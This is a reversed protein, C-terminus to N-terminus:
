DVKCLNNGSLLTTSIKVSRRSNKRRPRPSNAIAKIVSASSFIRDLHRRCSVIAYSFCEPRPLTITLSPSTDETRARVHAAMNASCPECSSVSSSSRRSRARSSTFKVIVLCFEVGADFCAGVMAIVGNLFRRKDVGTERVNDMGDGSSRKRVGCSM